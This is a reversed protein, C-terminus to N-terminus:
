YQVEAGNVYSTTAAGSSNLFYVDTTESWPVFVTAGPAIQYSKNTQTITPAANSRQVGAVWLYLSSDPNHIELGSRRNGSPKLKTAAGTGAVTFPTFDFRNRIGYAFPIM